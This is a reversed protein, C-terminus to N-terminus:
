LSRHIFVGPRLPTNRDSPRGFHYLVDEVSTNEPEYRPVNRGLAWVSGTRQGMKCIAEVRALETAEMAVLEVYLDELPHKWGRVKLARLINAAPQSGLSLVDIVMRQITNM